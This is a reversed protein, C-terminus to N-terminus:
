DSMDFDLKGKFKKFTAPFEKLFLRSYEGAVADSSQSEGWDAVQFTVMVGEKGGAKSTEIVEMPPLKSKKVMKIGCPGEEPSGTCKISAITAKGEQKLSKLFSEFTTEAMIIGVKSANLFLVAM